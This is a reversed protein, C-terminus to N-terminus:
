ARTSATAPPTVDYIPTVVALFHCINSHNVALARPGAQDTRVYLHHLRPRRGREVAPSPNGSQPGPAPGPEVELAACPLTGTVARFRASTVLCALAADAAIFAVREAPFSPDIPVFAAGAKLVALLSVYTAASRELLIGVTDGPGAGQAILAHALQNARRDLEAYTLSENGSVIALAEPCADCQAEFFFHLRRPPTPFPDPPCFLEDVFAVSKM